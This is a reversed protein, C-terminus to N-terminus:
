RPRFVARCGRDVWIDGREMGWTSGWTCRADSLQRHVVPSGWGRPWDCRTYRGKRSECTVERSGAAWSSISFRARCGNDVWVSDRTQGWNRGEVCRTSSLQRDLSVPGRGPKRCESYRDRISECVFFDERQGGGWGGSGGYGREQASPALSSIDISQSFAPASLCLLSATVLGVLRALQQMCVEQFRLESSSPCCQIVPTTSMASSGRQVLNLWGISLYM